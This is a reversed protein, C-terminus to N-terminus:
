VVVMAGLCVMNVCCDVNACKASLTQVKFALVRVTFAWILAKSAKLVIKKFVPCSMESTAGGGAMCIDSSEPTDFGRSQRGLEEPYCIALMGNFSLNM